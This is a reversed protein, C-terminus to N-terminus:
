ADLILAPEHYSGRSRKEKGRGGGSYLVSPYSPPSKTTTFTCRPSLRRRERTERGLDSPLFITLGSVLGLPPLFSVGVFGDRCRRVHADLSILLLFPSQGEKRIKCHLRFSKFYLHYQALLMCRDQLM